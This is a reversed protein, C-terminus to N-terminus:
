GGGGFLSGIKGLSGTIGSLFSQEQNGRTIEGLAKLMAQNLLYNQMSETLGAGAKFGMEGLGEEGKLGQGYLGLIHGLYTEFDQNAIDESIRAAQQQHAPSGAMGGAAVANLAANQGEHQRFQYGPSQQYGAGFQKYLANPDSLLKGFQEQLTPLAGKGANIWPDYGEHLVGPIGGLERRASKSPDPFLDGGFFGYAAGPIAGFNTGAMLGRRWDFAM